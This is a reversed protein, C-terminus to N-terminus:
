ELLRADAFRLDLRHLDVESAAPTDM